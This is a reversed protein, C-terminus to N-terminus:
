SCTHGCVDLRVPSNIALLTPINKFRRKFSIDLYATKLSMLMTWSKVLNSLCQLEADIKKDLM